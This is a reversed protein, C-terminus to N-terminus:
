CGAVWLNLYVLFDQTNVLGDGNVDARSDGSTWSNLYALFDQTNVTGDTNWDAVCGEGAALGEFPVYVFNFGALGPNENVLDFGAVEFSGDEGAEWSMAFPGDTGCLMLVGDTRSDVGPITIKTVPFGWTQDSGTSVSFNGTGSVTGAGADIQGAVLDPTSYPFWVCGYDWDLSPAGGAGEFASLTYSPGNPVANVIRNNNDWNIAILVGDVGATGDVAQEWTVDTLVQVDGQVDFGADTPFFAAAFNSNIEGGALSANHAHMEGNDFSCTTWGSIGGTGSNDRIFESSSVLYLGESTDLSNDIFANHRANFFAMGIDALNDGAITIADSGMERDASMDGFGNDPTYETVAIRAAHAVDMRAQYSQDPTGPTIDVGTKFFAFHVVTQYSGIDQLGMGTVDRTTITWGNADPIVFVPNDVNTGGFDTTPSVVLTGTSPDEGAIELRYTGNDTPQGVMEFTFDGQTYLPRATGTFVGMTVGPTGDPIFAFAVPDQEQGDADDGNDHNNLVGVGGPALHVQVHNDENKGGCGLLVGDRRMDIGDLRVGFNGTATDIFGNGTGPDNFLNYLPIAPNTVLLDIIGGNASNYAAGAMWGDSLPFFAFSSNWNREQGGPADSVALFYWGNTTDRASAVTAYYPDNGGCLNIDPRADDYSGCILVGLNTDDGTAFDLAYDGRSSADALISWGATGTLYSVSVSTANNGCDNEVVDIAGHEVQAAAQGALVALIAATIKTTHRM